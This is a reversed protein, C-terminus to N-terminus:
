IIAKLIMNESQEGYSLEPKINLLKYPTKDALKVTEKKNLWELTPM